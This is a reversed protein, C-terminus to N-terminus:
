RVARKWQKKHRQRNRVKRANRKGQAVSCPVGIFSRRRPGGRGRFFDLDRIKALNSSTRPAPSPRSPDMVLLGSGASLRQIEHARAVDAVGQQFGGALAGLGALIAIPLHSRRLSIGSM